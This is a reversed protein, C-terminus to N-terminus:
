SIGLFMRNFETTYCPNTYLRCDTLCLTSTCIRWFRLAFSDESGRLCIRSRSSHKSTKPYDAGSAFDWRVTVRRLVHPRPMHGVHRLLRRRVLRKSTHFAVAKWAVGHAALTVCCRMVFGVLQCRTEQLWPEFNMQLSYMHSIFASQLACHAGHVVLSEISTRLPPWSNASHTCDISDAFEGLDWKVYDAGPRTCHAALASLKRRSIPCLMCAINHFLDVLIVLRESSM